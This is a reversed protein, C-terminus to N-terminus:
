VTMQGFSYRAYRFDHFNMKHWARLTAKSWAAAEQSSLVHGVSEPLAKGRVARAVALATGELAYVLPKRLRPRIFTM